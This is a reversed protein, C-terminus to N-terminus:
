SEDKNRYTQPKLSNTKREMTKVMGDLESERKMIVEKKVKVENLSWEVMFRIVTDEGESIHKMVGNRNM